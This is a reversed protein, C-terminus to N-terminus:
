HITSRSDLIVVVRAVLVVVVRAGVLSKTGVELEVVEIVVVKFVSKVKDSLENGTSDSPDGSSPASETPPVAPFSFLPLEFPFLESLDDAFGDVMKQAVM